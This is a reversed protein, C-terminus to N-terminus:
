DKQNMSAAMFRKHHSRQFRSLFPRVDIPTVKLAKFAAEVADLPYYWRGNIYITRHRIQELVRDPNSGSAIAYRRLTAENLHIGQPRMNPSQSM